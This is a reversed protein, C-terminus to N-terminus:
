RAMQELYPQLYEECYRKGDFFNSVSDINNELYVVSQFEPKEGKLLLEETFHKYSEILEYSTIKLKIHYLVVIFDFTGGTKIFVPTCKEIKNAEYIGLEEALERLVNEKLDFYDDKKDNWSLGGGVCQFRGPYATHNGMEGFVFKSDNTEVLGAGFVVKCGEDDTIRNRVTHLYHAYDTCNIVIKYSNQEEIISQVNFVEGRHFANQQNIEEWFDEVEKRRKSSLEVITNSYLIEVDKTLEILQIPKM